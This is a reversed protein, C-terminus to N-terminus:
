PQQAPAAQAAAAAAVKAEARRARFFDRLLAASEAARVGRTVALSPHSSHPSLSPPGEGGGSEGAEDKGDGDGGDGDSDAAARALGGVGEGKAAALLSVWGGDAGAAPNPAGYVLRDVRALLAAGACMACPELTVYLTTGGLRWGGPPAASAAARLVLLEAHSTADHSAEVRNRDAALVVPTFPLTTACLSTPADGGAAPPPPPPGTRVLVAGVPVEGDAAAARAQDLALGM